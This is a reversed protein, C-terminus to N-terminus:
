RVDLLGRVPEGDCLKKHGEPFFELSHMDELYYTALTFINESVFYMGVPHPQSALIGALFTLMEPKDKRCVNSVKQTFILDVKGNFCDDLLRCWEPANEMNPASQGEDIYFDVLTWNPCLEIGDKFHTIHKELYDEHKTQNFYRIYVGIKYPHKPHQYQKRIAALQLRHEAIREMKEDDGGLFYAIPAPPEELSLLEERIDIENKENEM